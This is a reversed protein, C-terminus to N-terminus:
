QEEESEARGEGHDTSTSSRAAHSGTRYFDEVGVAFDTWAPGVVAKEGVGPGVGMAGKVVLAM